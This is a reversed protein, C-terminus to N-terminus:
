TLIAKLAKLTRKQILAEDKIANAMAVLTPLNVITPNPLAQIEDLRNIGAQYQNKLDQIDLINTQIQAYLVPLFHEVIIDAFIKQQEPTMPGM